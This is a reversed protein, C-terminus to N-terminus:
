PRDSWGEPNVVVRFDSIDGSDLLSRVRKLLEPVAFQVRQAAANSRCEITVVTGIISGMRCRAALDAGLVEVLAAEVADASLVRRIGLRMDPRDKLKSILDRISQPSRARRDAM